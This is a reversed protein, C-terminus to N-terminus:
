KSPNQRDEDNETKDFPLPSVDDEIHQRMEETPDSSM